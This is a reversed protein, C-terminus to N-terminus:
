HGSDPQPAGPIPNTTVLIPSWGQSWSERSLSDPPLKRIGALLDGLSDSLALRTARALSEGVKRGWARYRLCQLSDPPSAPQWVPAMVSVHLSDPVITGEPVFVKARRLAGIALHKALLASAEHPRDWFLVTGPKTEWLRKITEDWRANELDHPLVVLGKVSDSLGSFVIEAWSGTAAVVVVVPRPAERLLGLLHARMRQPTPWLNWIGERGASGDAMLFCPVSKTRFGNRGEPVKTSDFELRPIRLGETASGMGALLLDPSTSHGVSDAWAQALLPDSGNDTWNWRWVFHSDPVSGMGETFGTRFADGAGALEGSLPLCGFGQFVEVKREQGQRFSFAGALLLGLVIVGTAVSLSRLTRSSPSFKM